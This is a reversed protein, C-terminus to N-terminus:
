ETYEEKVILDIIEPSSAISTNKSWYGKYKKGRVHVVVGFPKKVIEFVDGEWLGFLFLTQPINGKAIYLM